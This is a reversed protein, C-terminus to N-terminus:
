LDELLDAVTVNLYTAVTQLTKAKPVSTNWKGISGNSMDLDREIRYISLGKEEAIKKIKDYIM